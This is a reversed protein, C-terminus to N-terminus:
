VVKRSTKFRLYDTLKQNINKKRYRITKEDMGLALGIQLNSKRKLGYYQECIAQELPDLSDLAFCIGEMSAELHMIEMKLKIKKELLGVLEMQSKEISRSFDNYAQVTPDSMHGSSGGAAVGYKAVMGNSPILQNVDCLTKRIDEVHMEVAELARRKVQLEELKRYYSRLTAEMGKMTTNDM